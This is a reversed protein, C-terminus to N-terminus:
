TQLLRTAIRRTHGCAQRCCVRSKVPCSPAVFSAPCEGRATAAGTHVHALQAAPQSAAPQAALRPRLLAEALVHSPPPDRVCETQFRCGLPSHAAQGRAVHRRLLSCRRATVDALSSHPEEDDLEEVDEAFSLAPRKRPGPPVGSRSHKRGKSDRSTNPLCRLQQESWRHLMRQHASPAGPNSLRLAAEKHGATQKGLRALNGALRASILRQTIM